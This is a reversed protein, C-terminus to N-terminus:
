GSGYRSKTVGDWLGTSTMGVRLVREQAAQPPPIQKQKETLQVCARGSM